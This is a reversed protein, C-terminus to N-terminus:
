SDLITYNLPNRPITIPSKGFVPKYKTVLTILDNALLMKTVEPNVADDVSAATGFYTKPDPHGEPKAICVIEFSSILSIMFVTLNRSSDPKTSAFSYSSPNRLM